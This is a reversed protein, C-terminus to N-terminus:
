ACTADNRHSIKHKLMGTALDNLRPGLSDTVPSERSEREIRRSSHSSDVNACFFNEDGNQAAPLARRCAAFMGSFDREHANGRKHRLQFLAFARIGHPSRRSNTQQLSISRSQRSLRM